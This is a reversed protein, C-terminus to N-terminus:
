KNHINTQPQKRWKSSWNAGSHRVWNEDADLKVRVALVDVHRRVLVKCSTSVGIELNPKNSRNGLVPPIVEGTTSM